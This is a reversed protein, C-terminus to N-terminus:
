CIFLVGGEQSGKRQTRSPTWCLLRSLIELERHTQSSNGRSEPLTGEHGRLAQFSKNLRTLILLAQYRRPDTTLTLVHVLIHPRTHTRVKDKDM